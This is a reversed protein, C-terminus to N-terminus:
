TLRVAYVRLTFPPLSDPEEDEETCETFEELPIGFRYPSSLFEEVIEQLCDTIELRCGFPLLDLSDAGIASMRLQGAMEDHWVYFMAKGQRNAIVQDRWSKEIALVAHLVSDTSLRNAGSLALMNEQGDRGPNDSIQLEGDLAQWLLEALVPDSPERGETNMKSTEGVRCSKPAGVVAPSHGGVLGLVGM